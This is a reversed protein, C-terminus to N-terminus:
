PLLMGMEHQYNNSIVLFIAFLGVHIVM